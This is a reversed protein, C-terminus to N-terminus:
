ITLEAEPSRTEAQREDPSRTEAQREDEMLSRASHSAVANDTLLVVHYQKIQQALCEEFDPESHGNKQLEDLIHSTWTGM